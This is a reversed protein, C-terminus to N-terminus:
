HQEISEEFVFLSPAYFRDSGDGEDFAQSDIWITSETMMAKEICHRVRDSNWGTHDRLIKHTTYGITSESSLISDFLLLSDNDLEVPVSRLFKKNGINIICYGCGLPELCKIARTIDAETITSQLLKSNITTPQHQSADAQDSIKPMSRLERVAKLVDEMEHLGGNRDRTWLCVDVVQIALEFTWDGLGIWDWFGRRSNSLPDVGLENCMESFAKRFDPDSKIKNGHKTAFSKLSSQFTFLQRQLNVLNAASLSDSLNNYSANTISSRELSSIGVTRRM